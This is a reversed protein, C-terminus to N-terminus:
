IHGGDAEFYISFNWASIDGQYDFSLSYDISIVSNQHSGLIYSYNKKQELLSSLSCKEMQENGVKITVDLLSYDNVEDTFFNFTCKVDSPVISTVKIDQTVTDGPVIYAYYDVTKAFDKDNDIIVAEFVQNEKKLGYNVALFSGLAGACGLFVFSLILFVWKVAKM